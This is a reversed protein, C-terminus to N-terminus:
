AVKLTVARARLKWGSSVTQGTGANQVWYSAKSPANVVYFRKRQASTTNEVVVSAVYGALNNASPSRMDDTGGFLDLDQAHLVLATNATPATGFTFEIEFELDPRNGGDVAMDFNADDAQAFANNAISAGSSELTVWSGYDKIVEGAM